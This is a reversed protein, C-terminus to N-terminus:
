CLQRHKDRRTIEVAVYLCPNDISCAVSTGGGTSISLTFQIASLPRRIILDSRTAEDGHLADGTSACVVACAKVFCEASGLRSHPGRAARPPLAGGGGRPSLQQRALKAAAGVVTRGCQDLTCEHFFVLRGPAGAVIPDIYSTMIPAADVRAHPLFKHCLPHFKYVWTHPQVGKRGQSSSSSAISKSTRDNDDIGGQGDVGLPESLALGPASPIPVIHDETPERSLLRGSVDDIAFTHPRLITGVAAVHIPGAAASGKTSSIPTPPPTVASKRGGTTTPAEDTRSAAEDGGSRMLDVKRCRLRFLGHTRRAIDTWYVFLFPHSSASFPPPAGASAASAQWNADVAHAFTPIPGQPQVKGYDVLQRTWPFVPVSPRKTNSRDDSTASKSLSPPDDAAEAAAATSNSSGGGPQNHDTTAVDHLAADDIRHLISGLDLWYVCSTTVAVLFQEDPGCAVLPSDASPMDNSISSSSSSSTPLHGAADAEVSTRATTAMLHVFCWGTTRVARRSLICATQRQRDVLLISRRLVLVTTGPAAFFAAVRGVADRDVLGSPSRVSPYDCFHAPPGIVRLPFRFPDEDDYAVIDTERSGLDLFRQGKPRGDKGTAPPISDATATAAAQFSTPAFSGNAPGAVASVGRPRRSGKEVPPSILPAPPPPPPPPEDADEGQYGERAAGFQRTPPLPAEVLDCTSLFVARQPPEVPPTWSVDKVSFFRKSVPPVFRPATLFSDFRSSREPPPAVYAVDRSLLLADPVLASVALHRSQSAAGPQLQETFSVTAHPEVAHAHHEYRRRVDSDNWSDVATLKMPAAAAAMVAGHSGGGSALTYPSLSSPPIHGISDGTAGSLIAAPTPPLRGVVRTVRDAVRGDIDLNSQKELRPGMAVRHAEHLLEGPLFGAKAADALVAAAGGAAPASGGLLRSIYAVTRASHCGGGPALPDDVFADVGGAAANLYRSRSSREDPFMLPDSPPPPLVIFSNPGGSEGGSPSLMPRVFFSPPGM